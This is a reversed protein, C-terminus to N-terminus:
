FLETHNRLASIRERKITSCPIVEFARFVEAEWGRRGSMDVKKAVSEWSRVSPESPV